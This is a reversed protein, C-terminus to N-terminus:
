TLTSLPITDATSNAPLSGADIIAELKSELYRLTTHNLQSLLLDRAEEDSVGSEEKLWLFRIVFKKAPEDKSQSTERLKARLSPPTFNM